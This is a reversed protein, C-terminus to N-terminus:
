QVICHVYCVILVPLAVVECDKNSSERGKGEKGKEPQREERGEKRMKDLAASRGGLRCGPLGCSLAARCVYASVLVGPEPEAMEGVQWKPDM